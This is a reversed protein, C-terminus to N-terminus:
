HRRRETAYRAPLCRGDAGCRGRVGGAQKTLAGIEAIPQITGTVNSAHNILILRTKATLLHSITDLDPGQGSRRLGRGFAQRWLSGVSPRMVANHEMASTVITDGPNLGFLLMNLAETANKAFVVRDTSAANFLSTLQDRTDYVM